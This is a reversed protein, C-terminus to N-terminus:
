RPLQTPDQSGSSTLNFLPLAPPLSSRSFSLIRFRASDLRAWWIYDPKQQPARETDFLARASDIKFEEIKFKSDIQLINSIHPIFSFPVLKPPPRLSISCVITARLKQMM